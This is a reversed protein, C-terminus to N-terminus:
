GLQEDSARIVRIDGDTGSGVTPDDPGWMELREPRYTLAKNFSAQMTEEPVVTYRGDAELRIASLRSSWNVHPYQKEPEAPDQATGVLTGWMYRALFSRMPLDHPPSELVHRVSDGVEVLELVASRLYQATRDRVSAALSRVDRFDMFGHQFGNRAKQANTAAEDDGQFLVSRRVHANLKGADDLEYQAALGERDLGTASLVRSVAIPTLAEMGMFLHALALSEHGPKWHGLALAYQSIARGIRGAQEHRAVANVLAGTADVPIRRSPRPITGREERAFASFHARESSDPSADYAIKPYADGVWANSAFAIVAIFEAGAGGFVNIAEPLELDAEGRVEIWMERPVLAEFGEDAHRTRYTVTAYGVDTPFRDISLFDDEMFRADADAGMVVIFQRM